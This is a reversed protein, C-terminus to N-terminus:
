PWDLMKCVVESHVCRNLLMGEDFILDMKYFTGLHPEELRYRSNVQNPTLKPIELLKRRKAFKLFILTFNYIEM